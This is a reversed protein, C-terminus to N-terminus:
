IGMIHRKIFSYLKNYIIIRVNKFGFTWGMWSFFAWMSLIADFIYWIWSLGEHINWFSEPIYKKAFFGAFLLISIVGMIVFTIYTAIKRCADDAKDVTGRLNTITNDKDQLQSISNAIIEAKESESQFRFEELKKEGEKKANEVEAKHEREIIELIENATRDTYANIDNQTKDGLLTLALNTATLELYQNETISSTLKKKKIDEYFRIMLLDDLQITNYCESILLKRNLQDNGTPYNSWLISSIFVDTACVPIQHKKTNIREDNSMTAIIRNTTLMLAKCGKLNQIASNGRLRYTYTISDVDKDLMGMEHNFLERTHNHTYADTIITKLLEMDIDTFKLPLNPVEQEVIGWNSMVEAVNTKMVQMQTYTLGESVAMRLLRSSKRLDYNKSLLRQIADDLTAYIENINHQFMSFKAGNKKLISMLEVAADQNSVNNAGLLNYFFPTDIIIQVDKLSGSFNSLGSLSVLNSIANGKALRNLVELAKGGNNQDEIIYKSIVYALRKDQKNLIKDFVVKGQGVLLDIGHLDIFHLMGDEINEKSYETEYKKSYEFIAEVLNDFEDIIRDQNQLSVQHEALKDNQVYFIGNNKRLIGYKISTMRECITSIAGHTINDIGYIESMAKKIQAVEISEFGKKLICQCIMPVYTDVIDKKLVEHTYQLYALSFISDNM